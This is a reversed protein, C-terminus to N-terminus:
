AFKSALTSIWVGFNPQCALLEGVAQAACSATALHVDVADMAMLVTAM